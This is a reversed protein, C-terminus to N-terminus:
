DKKKRAERQLRQRFRFSASTFELIHARHTMHTIAAM